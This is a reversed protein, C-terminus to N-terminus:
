DHNMMNRIPLNTEKVGFQRMRSAALIVILGLCTQQEEGIGLERESWSGM